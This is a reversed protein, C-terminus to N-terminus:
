KRSLKTSPYFSLSFSMFRKREFGGRSLINIEVEVGEGSQVSDARSEFIRCVDRDFEGAVNAL